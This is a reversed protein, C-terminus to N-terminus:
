RIKKCVLLGNQKLVAKTRLYPNFDFVNEITKQVDFIHTFIKNNRKTAPLDFDKSYSQTKEAANKFNDISLTLPIDEEQYLDCIVQGDSLDIPTQPVFAPNETVSIKSITITQNTTNKYAISIIPDVVQAVFDFTTVTNGSNNIATFTNGVTGVVLDNFIFIGAGQWGIQFESGSPLSNHEITLTYQGGISLGSIKQYAGALSGDSGSGSSSYLTLTNASTSISPITTANFIATTSETYFLRWNGFQAPVSGSLSVAWDLGAASIGTTSIAPTVFTINSAYENLLQVNNFSYSNYNQPYLILQTSM